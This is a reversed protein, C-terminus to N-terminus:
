TSRTQGADDIRSARHEAIRVEILKAV